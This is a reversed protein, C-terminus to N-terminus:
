KLPLSIIFEAGTYSKNIYEYTTNKVKLSGKMGDVILNYTMHLGLGTGQSQHKTTFYPEFIKKIIKDEIGGANDKISIKVQENTEYIKIFIFRESGEKELFADKSNNVINMWCQILENECGNVQIKEDLDLVLTINNSKLQGEVLHLFSNINDMLYFLKKTRDEKIFNRFDDITKSLYQTNDNIIHCTEFLKEDTLV